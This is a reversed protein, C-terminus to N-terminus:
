PLHEGRVRWDLHADGRQLGLPLEGRWRRVASYVLHWTRQAFRRMARSRLVRAQFIALEYEERTNPMRPERNSLSSTITPRTRCARRHDPSRAAARRRWAEPPRWASSARSM